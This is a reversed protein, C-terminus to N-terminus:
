ASSPMRSLTSHSSNLRTSKRDILNSLSITGGNLVGTQLSKGAISTIEYTAHELNNGTIFLESNAPNPYVAIDNAIAMDEVQTVITKCDNTPCWQYLINKGKSNDEVLILYTGGSNKFAQVAYPMDVWGTEGMNTPVEITGVKQMNSSKFVSLKGRDRSCGVFVYESAVSMAKPYFGELDKPMVASNSAIRNGKSWNPYRSITSGILGWDNKSNPNSSSWGGIFMVDSDADYELREIGTMPSPIATAVTVEAGFIPAGEPTFGTLPIKKINKDSEYWVNANKDPLASWGINSITKCFVAIEGDFRYVDFSGAYMTATFMILNGNVRRMLATSISTPVKNRIDNPYNICDNTLSVLSWQQSQYDYKMHENMGYIDAGDSAPDISAIDSFMMGQVEWQKIGNANFKRLSVANEDLAIYINGKADTGCGSIRWFRLDGVTGKNGASIGGLDGFTGVQAGATNFKIVQRRPGNDGILILDNYADYNVSSPLWGAQSAIKTNTNLGLNNYKVVENKDTLIWINGDKDVALDYGGPVTFTLAVTGINTISRKQVIGGAKILYVDTATATMGTAVGSNVKSEYFYNKARNFILIDGDCNNAYLYNDNIAVAETSTGYGWCNHGGAENYQKLYAVPQGDKFIGVCRGAEDWASATILTGDSAVDMEEAYNQVWKVNDGSFTNGVFGNTVNNIQQSNVLAIPYIILGLVFACNYKHKNKM